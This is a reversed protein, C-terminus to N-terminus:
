VKQNQLHRYLNNVRKLISVSPWEDRLLAVCQTNLTNITLFNNEILHILLKEFADFAGGPSSTMTLQLLFCSSIATHFIYPSKKSDSILSVNENASSSLKDDTDNALIPPRTFEILKPHQWFITLHKLM